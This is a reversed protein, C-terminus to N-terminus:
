NYGNFLNAGTNFSEVNSRFLENKKKPKYGSGSINSVLSNAKNLDNPRAQFSKFLSRDTEAGLRAMIM